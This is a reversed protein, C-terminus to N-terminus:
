YKYLCAQEVKLEGNQVNGRGFVFYIKPADAGLSTGSPVAGSYQPWICIYRSNSDIANQAEDSWVTENGALESVKDADSAEFAYSEGTPFEAVTDNQFERAGAYKVAGDARYLNENNIRYNRTVKMDTSVINMGSIGIVTLLLLIILTILLTSGNNSGGRKEMRFQNSMNDWFIRLNM